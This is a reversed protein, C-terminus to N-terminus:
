LGEALQVAVLKAAVTYKEAMRVSPSTLRSYETSGGDHDSSASSRGKLVLSRNRRVVL